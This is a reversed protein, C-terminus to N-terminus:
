YFAHHALPYIDGSRAPTHLHNLYSVQDVDDGSNFFIYFKMFLPIHKFNCQYHKIESSGGSITSM